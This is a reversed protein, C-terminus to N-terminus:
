VVSKRDPGRQPCTLLTGEIYAAEASADATSWNELIRTDPAGGTKRYVWQGPRVPQGSAAATAAQDALLRAAVTATPAAAPHTAPGSVVVLAAALGAALGTVLPAVVALRWRPRPGRVGALLTLGRAGALLSLRRRTLWRRPCAVWAREAGPNEALATRFLYEAHPSVGHPVEERLRTLLDMENM